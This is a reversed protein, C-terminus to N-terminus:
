RGNEKATKARSKNRKIKDGRGKRERGKEGACRAETAVAFKTSPIKLSQFSLHVHSTRKMEPELDLKM